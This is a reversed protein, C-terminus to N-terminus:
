DNWPPIPKSEGPALGGLHKLVADYDKDTKAYSTMAEGHMGNSTTVLHLTITGDPAMTAIGVSAPAQESSSPPAASAQDPQKSCGFLVVVCGIWFLSKVV